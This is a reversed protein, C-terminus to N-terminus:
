RAPHLQPPVGVIRTPDPWCRIANAGWLLWLEPFSERFRHLAQGCQEPTLPPADFVWLNVYVLLPPAPNYKKAAKKEVAREIAFIASQEEEAPDFHEILEPLGAAKRRAAERYEDARRRGEEMAEVLEFGVVVSGETKL